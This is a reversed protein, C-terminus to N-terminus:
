LWTWTRTLPELLGNLTETDGCFSLSLHELRGCFDLMASSLSRRKVSCLLRSLSSRSRLLTFTDSAAALYSTGLRAQKGGQTSLALFRTLARTNVHERKAERKTSESDMLRIRYQREVFSKRTLVAEVARGNALVGVPRDDLIRSSIAQKSAEPEM